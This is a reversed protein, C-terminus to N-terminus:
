GNGTLRAAIGDLVIGLGGTFADDTLREVYGVGDAPPPPQHRMLETSLPFREAFDPAQEALTASRERWWEQDAVGTTTAAARAEIMTRATARVFHLLLSATPRREAVGLGATRLLRLLTELMTQEHPGLVGRAYSVHVVWPHRLYMAWVDEAWATVAARWDADPDFETALEAHVRDYMVDVLEDKGPVYTYLAMATCGLRDAVARLSVGATGSEDAVSIATAVIREVSLGPKPGPATRAPQSDPAQWLLAMSRAADGQGAFQSM